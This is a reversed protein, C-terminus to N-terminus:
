PWTQCTGAAATVTRTTRTGATAISGTCGSVTRGAAARTAGLHLRQLVVVTLMEHVRALSWLVENSVSIDSIAELLANEGKM